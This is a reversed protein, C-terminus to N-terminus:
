KMASSLTSNILNDRMLHTEHLQRLSTQTHVHEAPNISDDNNLVDTLQFQGVVHQIDSNQCQVKQKVAFVHHLSNNLLHRMGRRVSSLHVCKRSRDELMVHTLQGYTM